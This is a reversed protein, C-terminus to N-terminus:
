KEYLAILDRTLNVFQDLSFQEPRLTFDYDLTKWDPHLNVIGGLTNRIMKRRQSFCGRVVTRFMDYDVDPLQSVDRFNIKVVGGDVRPKPYFQEALVKFLYEPQGHFQTLVTVGSYTRNGSNATLRLAVEQQVMTVVQKIYPKQKSRVQRYLKFLIPGTLHYPLNGAVYLGEDSDTKAAIDDWDIKMFDGSILKFDRHDSINRRLKNIIDLDIEIGIVRHERELLATTLMGDGPGIEIVQSGTPIAAAIDQAVQPDRLLFQGLSKKPKPVRRTRQKSGM